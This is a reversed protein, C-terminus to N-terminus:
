GSLRSSSARSLCVSRVSEPDHPHLARLKMILSSLGHAVYREDVTVLGTETDAERVERAAHRDAIRNIVREANRAVAARRSIPAM